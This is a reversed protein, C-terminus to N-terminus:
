CVKSFISMLTAHSKDPNYKTDVLERGYRGMREAEEPHDLLYRIKVVLDSIDGPQFLLGSRGNEIVYPLSGLDSGIVPKGAAYAELVVMGFTEYWQSPVITLLSESLWRWKEKGELFGVLEIHSLGKEQIYNRLSAELPGTGAIKLKVDKLHEFARILTWVGKEASLRGLYLVFDGGGPRPVIGAADIFNPKIFIKEAPIGAEVLKQKSFETLCVYADIKELIGALRNAGISSAYVASLIYSDRYCRYQVAHIYNGHKCRECIKGQTYFWGNPCLFRFDHVVQVIPVRLSHLAHYISPSVLPFVNHIYAVDPRSNAVLSKIEQTTRPSYVTHFPFALKRGLNYSTIEDNHRSYFVVEEAREELLQKEALAVADEGGFRQYFDHVLLIKM